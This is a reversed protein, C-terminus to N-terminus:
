FSWSHPPGPGSPATLGFALLCVFLRGTPYRGPLKDSGSCTSHPSVDPIWVYIQVRIRQALAWPTLRLGTMASFRTRDWALGTPNATSLTASPRTKRETRRNEGTLTMGGASSTCETMWEDMVSAICNRYNLADNFLARSLFKVMWREALWKLSQAAMVVWVLVTVTSENLETNWSVFWM